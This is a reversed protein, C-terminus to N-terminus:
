FERTLKLAFSLQKTDNEPWMTMGGPYSEWNSGERHSKRMKLLLGIGYLPGFYRRMEGSLDVGYGKRSTVAWGPLKNNTASLSLPQSARVDYLIGWKASFMMSGRVGVLLDYVEIREIADSILPIDWREHQTESWGFGAYPKFWPHFMLGIYGKIDSYLHKFKNSQLLIGGYGKWSETDSEPLLTIKSNIELFLSRFRKEVEAGVVVNHVTSDSKVQQTQIYEEYQIRDVGIFISCYIDRGKNDAAFLSLPIFLAM